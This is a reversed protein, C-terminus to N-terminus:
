AREELALEGRATNLIHDRFCTGLQDRFNPLHLADSQSPLVFSGQEFEGFRFLLLTEARAAGLTHKIRGDISNKTTQPM